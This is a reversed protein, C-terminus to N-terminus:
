LSPAFLKPHAEDIVWAYNTEDAPTIKLSNTPIEAILPLVKTM